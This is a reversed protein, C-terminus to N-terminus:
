PGRPWVPADVVNKDPLWAEIAGARDFVTRHHAILFNIIYPGGVVESHESSHSDLSSRLGRNCFNLLGITFAAHTIARLGKGRASRLKGAIVLDRAKADFYVRDGGPFHWAKLIGEIHKAFNDAVSAPLDGEAVSAEKSGEPGPELERRRREIDRITQYISM